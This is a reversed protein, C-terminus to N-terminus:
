VNELFGTLASMKAAVSEADIRGMCEPYACTRLPCPSCPVEGRLIELRNGYPGYVRPDKPGFLGVTPVGVRAALHLAASDSGVVVRARALVGALHKLGPLPPCEIAGIGIGAVIARAMWREGPGWTILLPLGTRRHFSRGAEAYRPLPWRKFAGFRSTGPHLVAFDGAVGAGRLLGDAAARVTESIALPDPREPISVGLAAVLAFNKVVRNLVEQGPRVRRNTALHSWERSHGPVFGWRVPARSLVVHLASKANGQFDVVTDYRQARIEEAYTLAEGAVTLLEARWRRSWGTRPFRHLRDLGPLDELIGAARDDVAWGLFADPWARRLAFFAPLTNIVDGIASLRVILV